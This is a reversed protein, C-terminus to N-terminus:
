WLRIKKTAVVSPFPVSSHDVSPVLPPVDITASMAGPVALEVGPERATTLPVSCDGGGPLAIRAGGVIRHGPGGVAIGGEGHVGGVQPGSRRGDDARSRQTARGRDGRGIRGDDGHRRGHGLDIVAVARELHSPELGSHRREGQRQGRASLLVRLGRQEDGDERRPLLRAPRAPHGDRATEAGSEILREGDDDRRGPRRREGSRRGGARHGDGGAPLLERAPRHGARRGDDEGDVKFRHSRDGVRDDVAAVRAEEGLGEVARVEDGLARRGEGGRELGNGARGARVEEDDM